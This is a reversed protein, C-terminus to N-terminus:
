AFVYNAQTTTLMQFKLFSLALDSVQFDFKLQTM